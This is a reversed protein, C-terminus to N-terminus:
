KVIGGMGAIPNVILGIKKLSNTMFDCEFLTTFDIISLSFM